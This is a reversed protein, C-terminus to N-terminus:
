ASPTSCLRRTPTSPPIGNWGNGTRRRPACCTSCPPSTSSPGGKTPHRRRCRHPWSPTTPSSSPLGTTSHRTGTSSTGPLHQFMEALAPGPSTAALDQRSVPPSAATGIVNQHVASIWWFTCGHPPVVTRDSVTRSRPGVVCGERRDPVASTKPPARSGRARSACRPRRRCIGQRPSGNRPLGAPPRAGARHDRHSRPRATRRPDGRHDARRTLHNGCSTRRRPRFGHRRSRGVPGLRRRHDDPPGRDEPAPVRV